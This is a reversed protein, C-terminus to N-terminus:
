PLVVIQRQHPRDAAGRHGPSSMDVVLLSIGQQKPVDPNTRVLMYMWDSKDGYSTWIKTGNVM